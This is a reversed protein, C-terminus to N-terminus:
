KIEARPERSVKEVTKRERAKKWREEEEMGGVSFANELRGGALNVAKANNKSFRSKEGHFRLDCPRM